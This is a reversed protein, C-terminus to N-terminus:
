KIMVIKNTKINKDGVLITYFYIGSLLHHTKLSSNQTTADETLVVEGITNYLVIKRKSNVDSFQFNVIDNAPNPFVNITAGNGVENVGVTSLDILTIDDIYYYSFDGYFPIPNSTGIFLTDTNANSNFNGIM